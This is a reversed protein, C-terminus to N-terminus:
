ESSEIKWKGCKVKKLVHFNRGRKRRTLYKMLRVRSRHVFSWKREYSKVLALLRSLSLHFNWRWLDKQQLKPSHSSIWKLRQYCSATFPVCQPLIRENKLFRKCSYNFPSKSHSYNLTQESIRSALVVRQPKKYFLGNLSINWPWQRTKM